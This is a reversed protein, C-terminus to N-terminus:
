NKKSNRVISLTWFRLLELDPSKLIVRELPGLLTPTKREDGSSLFFETESLDHKRTKLIGSSPCPGSVWYNQTDYVITQVRLIRNASSAYPSADGGSSM